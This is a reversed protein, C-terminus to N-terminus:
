NEQIIISIRRQKVQSTKLTFLLFSAGGVRYRIVEVCGEHPKLEIHPLCNDDTRGPVYGNREVKRSLGSGREFKELRRRKM